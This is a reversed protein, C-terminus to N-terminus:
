AGAPCDAPADLHLATMGFGLVLQSRNEGYLAADASMVMWGGQLGQLDQRARDGGLAAAALSLVDVPLDEVLPELDVARVVRVGLCGALSQLLQGPECSPLSIQIESSVAVALRGVGSDDSCRRRCGPRQPGPPHSLILAQNAGLVGVAPVSPINASTLLDAGQSIGTIWAQRTLAAPLDAGTAAAPDSAFLPAALGGGVGAAALIGTWMQGFPVGGLAALYAREPGPVDTTFVSGFDTRAMLPALQKAYALMPGAGRILYPIMLGCLGVLEESPFGAPVPPAGPPLAALYNAIGTRAQGPANGVRDFDDMNTPTRGLEERALGAGPVLAHPGAAPAGVTREM